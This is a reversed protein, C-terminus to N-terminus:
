GTEHEAEAREGRDGGGARQAGQGGLGGVDGTRTGAEHIRHDRLPRGAICLLGAVVFLKTLSTTYRVGMFIWAVLCAKSVAILLAVVIHLATTSKGSGGKENGLVVVHASQAANEVSQVPM